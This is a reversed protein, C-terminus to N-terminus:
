SAGIRQYLYEDAYTDDIRATKLATGIRRFGCTEYLAIAAKNYTRVSLRINWVGAADAVVLARQLVARGVGLRRAAPVVGMGIEGCHTTLEGPHRTFSLLSMVVPDREAMLFFSGEAAMKERIRGAMEEPPMNLFRDVGSNLNQWSSALLTQMYTLVAPADDPDPSRLVADTGDRLYVVVPEVQM